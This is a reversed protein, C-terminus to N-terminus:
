CIMNIEVESNGNTVKPVKPKCAASSPSPMLEDERWGWFIRVNSCISGFGLILLDLLKLLLQLILARDFLNQLLVSRVCAEGECWHLPGEVIRM